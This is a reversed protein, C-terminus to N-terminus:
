DLEDGCIFISAKKPEIKFSIQNNKIRELFPFKHTEKKM